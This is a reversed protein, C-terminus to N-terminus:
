SDYGTGDDIDLMEDIDMVKLARVFRKRKRKNIANQKQREYDNDEFGDDYVKPKRYTKSM